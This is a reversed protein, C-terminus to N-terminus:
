EDIPRPLGPKGTPSARALADGSAAHPACPAARAGFPHPHRRLTGKGPSASGSPM